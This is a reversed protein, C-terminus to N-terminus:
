SRELCISYPRVDSDSLQQGSELLRLASLPQTTAIKWGAVQPITQCAMAQKDPRRFRATISLTPPHSFRRVEAVRVKCAIQDSERSLVIDPEGGQTLRRVATAGPRPPQSSVPGRHQM